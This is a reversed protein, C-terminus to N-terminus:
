GLEHTCRRAGSSARRHATSGANREPPQSKIEIAREARFHCRCSGSLVGPAVSSLAPFSSRLLTKECSPLSTDASVKCQHFGQSIGVLNLEQQILPQCGGPEMSCSQSRCSSHLGPSPLVVLYIGGKRTCLPPISVETLFGLAAVATRPQLCTNIPKLLTDSLVGIYIQPVSM